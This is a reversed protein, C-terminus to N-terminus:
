MEPWTITLAIVPVAMAIAEAIIPKLNESIM